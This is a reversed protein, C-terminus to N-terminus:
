ALFGPGAIAKLRHGVEAGLVAADRAAGREEARHVISGDPLAVLARLHILGGALEAYAAIPTRCSGELVALCAREAAVCTDTALDNVPALLEDIWSDARRTEIGIAGQGAAPLMEEPSLVASASAEKGLRKLGALALLTADVEGLALKNLRTEVNGRLNVIRLDPRIALLQAQRRLSASGVIAGPALDRISTVPGAILADRPDERPLMCALALGEPLESPVDKVSHVALDIAGAVLAEELEKIFLGKGGIESLARDQVRDGTTRVVVIEVAGPEGLEPRAAVLRRRAEGAQVLALPSGRTGIRLPTGAEKGQIHAEAM